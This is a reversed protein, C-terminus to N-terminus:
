IRSKSRSHSRSSSRHIGVEESFRRRRVERKQSTPAQTNDRLVDRYWDRTSDVSLGIAFYGLVLEVLRLNSVHEQPQASEFLRVLKRSQEAGKKEAVTTMTTVQTRADAAGKGVSSSSHLGDVPGSLKQKLKMLMGGDGITNRMAELLNFYHVPAARLSKVMTNGATAFLQFAARGATSLDGFTVPQV